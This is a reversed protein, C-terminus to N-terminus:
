PRKMHFTGHDGDARYTSVFNTPTAQGEYTYKGGAFRGLDAEGKLQITGATEQAQLTVTYGFTLIKFYNAHFRAEYQGRAHKTVLCRLRGAHGNVESQWSGEWRGGINDAPMPQAAAQMWDHNFTSCGAAVLWLLSFALLRLAFTPSWNTRKM